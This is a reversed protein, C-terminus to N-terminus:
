FLGFRGQVSRSPSATGSASAPKEVETGNSRARQGLASSGALRAAARRWVEAGGAPVRSGGRRGGGQTGSLVERAQSTPSRPHGPHSQTHAWGSGVGSPGIRAEQARTLQWLRPRAGGAAGHLRLARSLPLTKKDLHLSFVISIQPYRPVFWSWQDQFGVTSLIQLWTDPRGM